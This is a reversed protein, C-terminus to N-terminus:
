QKERMIRAKDRQWDRKKEAERKDYKKKGRALALQVKARGRANFYLQLPVLTLGKAQTQGTLRKIQHRHLLLKRPRRPDHGFRGAQAYPAIYSNILLVEDGEVSAYSEAIGAQSTRLSKVESGMLAIGAEWEELIEYNFRAKRNQAIIKQGNDKAKKKAM